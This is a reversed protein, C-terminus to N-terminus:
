PRKGEAARPLVAVAAYEGASFVRAAVRRLDSSTLKDIAALYDTGGGAGSVLIHRALARAISLGSEQFSEAAFRIQNKASGLYDFVYAQADGFVDSKAFNLNRAKKLFDVAQRKAPEVRDPDLTMVLIAIGGFRRAFYSMSLTKALERRGGRMVGNLLPNVGRGCVEILVDLAYQDSHVANPAPWGLVLTAENVDLVETREVSKELRSAEPFAAPAFAAKPLDGFAAKVKAEMDSLAFDGVVAMVANSPVFYSRHFSLLQDVTVAQIVERSGYVPNAYPHGAFVMQQVLAIGLRAADDELMSLEELIIDKESALEEDTLELGFLLNRQHRFAFEAEAAPLAIEFLSLDQDTHANFYAGHRRAALGADGGDRAETGRFLLCHELVHVLGSTEATEDKSGLNVATVVNLLPVDRKELLFVRM